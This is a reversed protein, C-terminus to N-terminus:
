FEYRKPDFKGEGIKKYYGTPKVLEVGYATRSVTEMSLKWTSGLRPVPNFNWYMFWGYGNDIADTVESSSIFGNKYSLGSCASNSTMGEVPKGKSGYNAWIADVFESPSHGDVAPLNYMGGYQFITVETEWPCEEKLAKKLEYCLRSGAAASYNTFWRNGIIPSSSYEDDLNVGDLKYQKCALAVERAWEKAGWDSLQCLGAADHNGLLGLYVKIGKNRLPQIYVETEDLLAQVNPNNNLYVLDETSNYNINAAFLVVADFFMSGDELVYELANLPNTDNVEFYVANRLVRSSPKPRDPQKTFVYNIRCNKYDVDVNDSVTTLSFPALYSMDPVLADNDVSFTVTTEGSIAGAAISVIGDGTMSCLHEPFIQCETKNNFNFESLYDADYVVKFDAKEALAEALTVTIKSEFKTDNATITMDVRSLGSDASMSGLVKDDGTSGSMRQLVAINVPKATGAKVVIRGARTGDTKNDAANLTLKDDSKSATVWEPAEFSWEAADTEITLVVDANNAAAFTIATSPTVSLMNDAGPAPVDQTVSIVVNRATGASIIIRGVRQSGTANDKANVTLKDDQKDADIWAPVDFDWTEADTVVTLVVDANGSAEFSITEAPEVTLMNIKDVKDNEDCSVFGGSLCLLGSLFTLFNKRM